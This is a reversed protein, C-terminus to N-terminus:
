ATAKEPKVQVWLVVLGVLPTLILSIIFNGWFGLKKDKGFYAILGCVLLYPLMATLSTM